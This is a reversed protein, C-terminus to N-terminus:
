CETEKPVLTVSNSKYLCFCANMELEINVRNNFSDFGKFAAPANYLVHLKRRWTNYNNIIQVKGAVGAMRLDSGQSIIAWTTYECIM